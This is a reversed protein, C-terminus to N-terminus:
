KKLSDLVEKGGNVFQERGYYDAVKFITDMDVNELWDNFADPIDDDLISPEVRTFYEMLYSEFNQKM